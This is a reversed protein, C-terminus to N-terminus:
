DSASCADLYKAASNCFLLCIISGVHLLYSMENGDMDGNLGPGVCLQVVEMSSADAPGKKWSDGPRVPAPPPRKDMSDGSRVSRCQL